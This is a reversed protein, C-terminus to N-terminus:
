PLQLDSMVADATSAAVAMGRAKPVYAKAACSLTQATLGVDM